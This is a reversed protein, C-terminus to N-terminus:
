KGPRQIGRRGPTGWDLYVEDVDTVMIFLNADLERALLESALDNDIVAEM